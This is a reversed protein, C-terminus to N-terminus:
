NFISIPKQPQNPTVNFSIKKCHKLLIEEVVAGLVLDNMVIRHTSPAKTVINGIRGTQDESGGGFGSGEIGKTEKEFHAAMEEEVKGVLLEEPVSIISRPIINMINKALIYRVM